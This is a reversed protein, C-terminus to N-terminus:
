KKEPSKWWNRAFSDGRDARIAREEDNMLQAVRKKPAPSRHGGGMSEILKPNKAVREKFRKLAAAQEALTQDKNLQKLGPQTGRTPPAVEPLTRGLIKKSEYVQEIDLQATAAEQYMLRLELFKAQDEAGIPEKKAMKQAIVLLDEVTRYQPHALQLAKINTYAIRANIEEEEQAIQKKEEAISALEEQADLKATYELLNKVNTIGTDANVTDEETLPSKAKAELRQEAKDIRIREKELALRQAEVRTKEAQVKVREAEIERTEKAVVKQREATAVHAAERNQAKAFADITKELGAPTFVTDQNETEERFKEEMQAFSYSKGAITYSKDPKETEKQIVALAAQEAETPEEGNDLKEQLADLDIGKLAEAPAKEAPPPPETDDDTEKEADPATGNELAEMEAPTPLHPQGQEAGVVSLTDDLIDTVNEAM